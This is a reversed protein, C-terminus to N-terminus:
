DNTLLNEVEQEQDQREEEGETTKLRMNMERHNKIFRDYGTDDEGRETTQTVTNKSAEYKEYNGYDRTMFKKRFDSEFSIERKLRLRTTYNKTNNMLDRDSKGVVDFYEAATDTFDRMKEFYSQEMVEDPTLNLRKKYSALIGGPVYPNESVFPNNPDVFDESMTKPGAANKAYPSKKQDENDYYEDNFFENHKPFHFNAGSQSIKAGSSFNRVGIMQTTNLLFAAQGRLSNISKFLM